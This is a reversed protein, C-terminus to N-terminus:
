PLKRVRVAVPGRDGDGVDMEVRDGVQVGSASLVGGSIYIDLGGLEPTIFGSGSPTKRNLRGTEVRKPDVLPARPGATVDLATSRDVALVAIVARGQGKLDVGARITLTTGAPLDADRGVIRQPLFLDEEPTATTRVFGFGRVASYWKVRATLTPEDDLAAPTIRGDPGKDVFIEEALRRYRGRIDDDDFDRRSRHV